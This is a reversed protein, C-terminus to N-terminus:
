ILQDIIAGAQENKEKQLTIQVQQLTQQKSKESVAQAYDTDSLRSKAASLNISSVEYNNIRVELGNSEAGLESARELLRGQLDDLTALNDEVSGPLNFSSLYSEAEADTGFGQAALDNVTEVIYDAEPQLANSESTGNGAQLVLERARAVGDLAGKLYGESIQNLGLQDGLNRSLVANARLQSDFRTDQALGAADDAASNIRSGSSLQRFSDEIARNTNNFSPPFGGFDNIGPM